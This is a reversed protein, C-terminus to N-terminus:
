SDNLEGKKDNCSHQSEITDDDKVARDCAWPWSGVVSGGVSWRWYLHVVHTFLKLKLPPVAPVFCWLVPVVIAPTIRALLPLLLLYLCLLSLECYCEHM